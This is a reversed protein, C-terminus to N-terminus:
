FLYTLFLDKSYIVPNIIYQQKYTKQLRPQEDESDEPEEEVTCSRLTSMCSYSSLCVKQPIYCLFKSILATSNKWM